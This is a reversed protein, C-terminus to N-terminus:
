YYLRTSAEEQYIKGQEVTFTDTPNQILVVVKYVCYILVIFILLPIIVLKKEQKINGWFIKRYNKSKSTKKTNEVQQVKENQKIIKTKQIPKKNTTKKKREM